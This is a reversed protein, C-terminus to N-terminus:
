DDKMEQEKHRVEFVSEESVPGVTTCIEDPLGIRSRRYEVQGYVLAGSRYFCVWDGRDIQKRPRSM